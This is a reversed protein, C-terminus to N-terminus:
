RKTRSGSAREKWILPYKEPAEISEVALDIDLDPWYLHGPHPQTVNLIAAVLADKFWPFNEYSLFLDQDAVLVKIGGSSISTVEVHM